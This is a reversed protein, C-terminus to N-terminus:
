LLEEVPIKNLDLGLKEREIGLAIGILQSILVVPIEMGSEIEALEFMIQCYPCATVIIQANDQIAALKEKCIEFSLKENINMTFAGCCQLKNKYDISTCGLIEVLKDLFTPKEPDDIKLIDNPRLLHCGYHVACKIENLPHKVMQKIKEPGIEKYLVEAFHRVRCIGQYKLGLENLIETIKARKAKDCLLFRASNLTGFCGNCFTLIEHGIKESMALIRAAFTLYALENIQKLPYGCCNFYELDILTVGFEELVCRISAEYQNLRYPGTCGPFLIFKM